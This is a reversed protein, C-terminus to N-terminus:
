ANFARRAAMIDIIYKKYAKTDEGSSSAAVFLLAAARFPPLAIHPCGPLQGSSDPRDLPYLPAPRTSHGLPGLRGSRTSLDPAEDGVYHALLANMFTPSFEEAEPLTLNYPLSM